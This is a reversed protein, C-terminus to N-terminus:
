TSLPLSLRYFLAALYTVPFETVHVDCFLANRLLHMMYHDLECSNLSLLILKKNNKEIINLVINPSKHLLIFM